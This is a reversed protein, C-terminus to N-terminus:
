KHECAGFTTSRLAQLDQSVELLGDAEGIKRERETTWHHGNDKKGELGHHWGEKRELIGCLCRERDMHGGCQQEEGKEPGWRGEVGKREM